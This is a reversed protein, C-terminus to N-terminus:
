TLVRCSSRRSRRATADRSDLNALMAPVVSGDALRLDVGLMRNRTDRVPTTSVPRVAFGGDESTEDANTYEWVRARRFSAPTLQTVKIRRSM